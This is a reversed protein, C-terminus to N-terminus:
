NSTPISQRADQFNTLVTLNSKSNNFVKLRNEFATVLDDLVIDQIKPSLMSINESLSSAMKTKIAERRKDKIKNLLNVM